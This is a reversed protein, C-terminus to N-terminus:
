WKNLDKSKWLKEKKEMLARENRIFSTKVHERVEYLERFTDTEKLHYKLYEGMNKRLLDGMQAMFNGTGTM